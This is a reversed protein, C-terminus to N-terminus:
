RAKRAALWNEWDSNAVYWRQYRENKGIKLVPLEGRFHADRSSSYPIGDAEAKRKLLTYRPNNNRSRNNNADV